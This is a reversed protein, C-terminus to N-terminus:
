KYIKVGELISQDYCLSLFDNFTPATLEGVKEEEGDEHSYQYTIQGNEAFYHYFCGYKSANFNYGVQGFEDSLFELLPFIQNKTNIFQKLKDELRPIIQEFKGIIITWDKIERILYFEANYCKEVADEWTTIEDEQLNLSKIIRDKAIMPITILGIMESVEIITIKKENLPFYEKNISEQYQSFDFEEMIGENNLFYFNAHLLDCIQKIYKIFEGKFREPFHSLTIANNEQPNQRLYTHFEPNQISYLRFGEGDETEKLNEIKKTVELWDKENIGESLSHFQWDKFIPKARSIYYSM